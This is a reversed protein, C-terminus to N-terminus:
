LRRKSSKNDKKYARKKNLLRTGEIFGLKVTKAGCEPCHEGKINKWYKCKENSCIIM